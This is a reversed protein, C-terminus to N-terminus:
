RGLGASRTAAAAVAAGPPAAPPAPAGVVIAGGPFGKGGAKDLGATGTAGAPAPASPPVPPCPAFPPSAPHSFFVVARARGSAAENLVDPPIEFVASNQSTVSGLRMVLGGRTLYIRVDSWNANYVHLTAPLQLPAPTTDRARGSRCAASVLPHAACCGIVVLQLFRAPTYTM